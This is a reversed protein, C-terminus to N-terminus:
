FFILNHIQLISVSMRHSFNVISLFSYFCCLLGEQGQCCLLHQGKKDGKRKRREMERWKKSEWEKKEREKYEEQFLYLEKVLGWIYVHNRIQLTSKYGDDLIQVNGAILLLPFQFALLQYSRLDCLLQAASLHNMDTFVLTWTPGWNNRGGALWTSQTADEKICSSQELLMCYLSPM